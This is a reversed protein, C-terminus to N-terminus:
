KKSIIDVESEQEYIFKEVLANETDDYM